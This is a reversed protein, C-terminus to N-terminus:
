KSIEIINLGNNRPMSRSTAIVQINKGADILIDTIMELWEENLGVDIGDIMVTSGSPSIALQVLFPLVSKIALGAHYLPAWKGRMLLYGSVRNPEVFGATVDEIGLKGLLRKLRNAAEGYEPKTLLMSLFHITYQGDGGVSHTPLDVTVEFTRKWWAIRNEGIFFFRDRLSQRMAFLAAQARGIEPSDECPVLADEHMVYSPPTCLRVQRPRIMLGAEDRKEFFTEEDDLKILQAMYGDAYRYMYRYEIMRAKVGGPELFSQVYDDVDIILGLGMIKSPDMGNIVDNLDHIVMYNGETILWDEGRSQMLFAMAELLSSKGSAPPGIILNLGGQLEVEKETIAKFNSVYIRRMM